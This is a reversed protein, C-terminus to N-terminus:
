ECDCAETPPGRSSVQAEGVRVAGRKSDVCKQALGLDREKYFVLSRLASSSVQHHGTRTGM